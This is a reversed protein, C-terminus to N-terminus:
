ISFYNDIYEELNYKKLVESDDYKGQAGELIRDRLMTKVNVQAKTGKPAEASQIVETIESKPTKKDESGGYMSIRKLRRTSRRYSRRRSRKNRKNTIKRTSRRRTSRRRTSRRRSSRKRRTSRRRSRMRRMSRRSSRQKM